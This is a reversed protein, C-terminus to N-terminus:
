GDRSLVATGDGTKVLVLSLVSQQTKIASWRALRTMVLVLGCPSYRRNVTWESLPFSVISNVISGAAISNSNVGSSRQERQHEGAQDPFTICPRHLLIQVTPSLRFLLRLLLCHRFYWFSVLRSSFESHSNRRERKTDGTAAWQNIPLSYLISRRSSFGSVARVQWDALFDERLEDVIVLREIHWHLASM